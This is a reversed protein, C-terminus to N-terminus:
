QTATSHNHSLIMVLMIAEILFIRLDSLVQRFNAPIMTPNDYPHIKFIHRLQFM